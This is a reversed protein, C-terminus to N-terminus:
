PMPSQIIAVRSVMVGLARDDPSAPDYDRPRFTGSRLTLVLPGPAAALPLSYTQWGPAPQIQGIMRGGALIVVDTPLDGAPRGAALRLEIRTAGDPATLLVESQAGSWRFGGQEPLWFGRVFGLDLGGGVEVAAPAPAFPAFARWAWDQLDERSTEEFALETRAAPADGQARLIVGRLLHAYPHARLAAIAAELLGLAAQQHGDLLAARALAVRALASDADWGLAAQAAVRAGDADGRDLARVAQDLRVHKWGLAWAERIYPRHLLLTGILLMCTLAALAIKSKLNKIKSRTKGWDLIQLRFDLIRKITWAAYPLLAPYLPLRYRLEVHFVLATLLTYLAWPVFLWRPDGAVSFLLHLISSLPYGSAENRDEIKGGRDEVKQRHDTTPPRHDTTPALWLGAVGGFLIVLWLGDGLLLRLWVELPPIWIARRERMDDFYELAFFKQAEGWAKTLFRGPDATIAAAGRAFAIRQRAARDDGLAYLQRKVAERGASDNDLWLNEAGATDVLIPAGYTLYNRATWPLIVLLSCLVFLLPGLVSFRSGSFRLVASGRSSVLSQLGSFWLAHQTPAPDITRRRTAQDIRSGRDEIRPEEDETTPPRHDTTPPRLLLWLAGLPLLPLAVSRLLALAGLNLGALCPIFFSSHLIFFPSARPKDARPDRTAVGTTPPRHDTTPTAVLLWFLTTLGFVFLTETLLETANAALTYNAAVLLGAILAVRRDGFLRRTLAYAPVVTLAGIIEQLLRLRQVLSDFLYICAALFGTYLPPRMLNLEVYRHERLLTLAQEFYEREDGGLDYLRHWRWVLLRLGLALLVLVTLIFFQSNLISSTSAFRERRESSFPRQKM